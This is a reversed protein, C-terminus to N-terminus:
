LEELCICRLLTRKGKLRINRRLAGIRNVSRCRDARLKSARATGHKIHVTTFIFPVVPRYPKMLGSSIVRADNESVPLVDRIDLLLFGDFARHGTNKRKPSLFSLVADRLHQTIHNIGIISILVREM